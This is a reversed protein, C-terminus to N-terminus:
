PSVATMDRAPGDEVFVSGDEPYETAWAYWGVGSHGEGHELSVDDTDEYGLMVMAACRAEDESM